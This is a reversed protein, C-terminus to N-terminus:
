NGPELDYLKLKSNKRHARAILRRLTDLFRPGYRPYVTAVGLTYTGSQGYRSRRLRYRGHWQYLTLTEGWRGRSIHMDIWPGYNNRIEDSTEDKPNSLTGSCHLLQFLAQITKRDTTTAGSMPPFGVRQNWNYSTIDLRTIQRGQRALYEDSKSITSRHRPQANGVTATLLLSFILRSRPKM